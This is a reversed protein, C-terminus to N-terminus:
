PAVSAYPNSTVCSPLVQGLHKRSSVGLKTFVKRLHYEVTHPSIFLRAGIETNSLGDRALVAVHSERPTLEGYAEVSQRRVTEGTAALERWAREAFAEMGMSAFMEHARHLQDRAHSPRRERRLWEGYLLHARALETRAGSRRLREIAEGYLKEAENGDALLARSRAEAGIAWNTGEAHTLAALRRYAGAATERAKTRAAAEILEVLAWASWAVEVPYETARQAAVLAQDYRGLSNNLVANAWANCFERREVSAWGTDEGLAATDDWRRAVFAEGSGAEARLQSAGVSQGLRNFRHGAGRASSPENEDTRNPVRAPIVM